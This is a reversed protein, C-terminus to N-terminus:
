VVTKMSEDNEISADFRLLISIMVSLLKEITENFTPYIFSLACYYGVHILQRVTSWNAYRDIPGNKALEKSIHIHLCRSESIYNTTDNTQSEMGCSIVSYLYKQWDDITMVEVKHFEFCLTESANYCRPLNMSLAGDVYLNGQYEVPAFLFPVCMSMFVAEVVELDPHTSARLYVHSKTNLNTTVCVLECNTFNFLAKLSINDAFGCRNLILKIANRLNEGDDLGYNTIFLSINLKPAINEFSSLIPTLIEILDDSSLKLLVCLACLAGVSTGSVGRINQIFSSYDLHQNFAAIVGLYASGRTGGGAFSLYTVNEM